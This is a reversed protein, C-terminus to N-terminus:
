RFDVEVGMKKYDYIGRLEKILKLSISSHPTKIRMLYYKILLRNLQSIKIKHAPEYMNQQM